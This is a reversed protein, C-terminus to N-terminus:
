EKEEIDQSEAGLLTSEHEEIEPEEINQGTRRFAKRAGCQVHIMLVILGCATACMVGFIVYVTMM